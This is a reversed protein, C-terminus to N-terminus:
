TYDIEECPIDRLAARRHRTADKSVLADAADVPVFSIQRRVYPTLTFRIEGGNLTWEEM